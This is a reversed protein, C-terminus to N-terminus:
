TNFIRILRKWLGFMKSPFVSVINLFYLVMSSLSNGSMNKSKPLLEKSMLFILKSHFALARNFINIIGRNLEFIKSNKRIKTIKGLILNQSIISSFVGNDPKEIYYIEINNTLRGIIRHSIFLGPKYIYTIIDGPSILSPEVHELLVYDGAEMLPFMSNSMVKLWCSKRTYFAEKWLDDIIEKAIPTKDICCLM